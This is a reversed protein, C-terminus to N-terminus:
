KPNTIQLTARKADRRDGILKIALLIALASNQIAFLCTLIILASEMRVIHDLLDTCLILALPSKLPQTIQM